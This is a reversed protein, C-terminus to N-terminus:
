TEQVPRYREATSYGATWAVAQQCTRMEPPVRLVYRSGTSPCRVEVFLYDEEGDFHIRLLRRTGGPAADEDVLVTRAHDVFWEYGVREMLVRRMEANRETLIETVTISEPDFAVRDPVQIGNWRV